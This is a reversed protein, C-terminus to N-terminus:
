GVYDHPVGLWDIVGAYRDSLGTADAVSTFTDGLKDRLEDRAAANVRKCCSSESAPGILVGIVLGVGVGAVLAFVVGANM